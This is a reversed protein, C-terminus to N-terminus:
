PCGAMSAIWQEVLAIGDIDNVSTALPPMRNVGTDKMRLAILSLAPNGPVLLKAGGVGLDDTPDQNCVNMDALATENRLDAVGRGPGGPRHCHSCNADLYAKARQEITGSSSLPSVLAPLSAAASAPPNTFLGISAYTDIQNATIGTTGYTYDRNLQPTKPGLARGAAVSHCRLCDAGSPYYWDQGEANVTKAATVLTADTQGADWEYSYGAWDGDVHHALLRTEVLAGKLFFDKRLVSGAPLSWDDDAAINIQAQDPLALWRKKTAGDSWLPSIVDFPIMGSTPQKPDTTDACGTESLKAPFAPTGSATGPVFKYIRGDFLNIAYVEGEHDQAFAAIGAMPDVLEARSPTGKPDSLGFIRGTYVDAFLYAGTLAPISAGRYVHGGTISNGVGHDYEDVPAQYSAAAGCSAAGSYAHNGEYCNWGYNKGVQLLDVEEWANQGVDALWLDGTLRDFSWRWPNRLGWAFIEPCGSGSCRAATAARAQNPCSGNLCTPTGSFANGAPIKYRRGAALDDAGVNVDIRLMAGLLTRTDQGHNEPDGGSGGDGFGIYLFGDPGFAINGGNHNEYPQAVTLLVFESGADVTNTQANVDFRSIVSRFNARNSDSDTYSVYFHRKGAYDPPFAIGLLGGEDPQADVVGSLDLFSTVSAPAAATDNPFTYVRGTREAIYWRTGDGPAQIMALPQNFALNTFVRQLAATNTGAAPRKGAVCKTNSPRQQLGSVPPPTSGGDGPDPNKSGNDGNHFCGTAGSLAALLVSM